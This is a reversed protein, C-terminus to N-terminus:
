GPDASLTPVVRLNPRTPPSPPTPPPPSSRPAPSSTEPRTPGLRATITTGEGPHSDIVLTGDIVAAAARTLAIGSGEPATTLDFGKGDDRVKVTVADNEIDISVDVTTADSHSWINHLAEHLIQLLATEAVWDLSLKEHVHITLRPARQDGYLSAVYATVEANLRQAAARDGSRSRCAMVLDRVSEAQQAMDGSLQASAGQVAAPSASALSRFSTYAAATQAYLQGAFRRRDDASQEMLQILLKRRAEAAYEVEQYLRRTEHQAAMQRLGWFVFLLSLAGLAFPVAWPRDEAVVATAVLLAVLGGLTVLTALRAGRVQAQPPLVGLGSPVLQPVHLPILFFMSFCVANIAMLPPAPLAFGTVGQAMHLGGTAAGTVGFAVAVLELSSHAPGLRVLLQTALYTGGISFVLAAACPLAFWPMEADMVTPGWLVVLPATAAVIATIGELVDVSTAREGSRGKVMLILGASGALGAMVVIPVGVDNGWRWGTTLGVLISAGIAYTLVMCAYLGGYSRRDGPPAHKVAYAGAVLAPTTYAKASLVLVLLYSETSDVFFAVGTIIPLSVCIWLGGLRRWIPRILGPDDAEGRFWAWVQRSLGVGTDVTTTQTSM